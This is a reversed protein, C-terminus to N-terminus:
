VTKTVNTLPKALNNPKTCVNEDVILHYFWHTTASTQLQNLANFWKFQKLM